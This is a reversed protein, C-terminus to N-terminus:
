SEFQKKVNEWFGTAESVRVNLIKEFFFKYKNYMEPHMAKLNILSGEPGPDDYHYAISDANVPKFCHYGGFTQDIIELGSNDIRKSIEVDARHEVLMDGFYDIDYVHANHKNIVDFWNYYLNGQPIDTYQRQYQKVWEPMKDVVIVKGTPDFDFEIPKLCLVDVDSYVIYDYKDLLRNAFYHKTFSRLFMATLPTTIGDFISWEEIKVNLNNFHNKAYASLRNNTFSGCYVDVTPM